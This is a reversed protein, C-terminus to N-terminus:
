LTKGSLVSKIGGSACLGSQYVIEEYNRGQVIKGIISFFEMMGNFDGLHTLVKEFEELNNWLIHYFKAATGADVTIHTYIM